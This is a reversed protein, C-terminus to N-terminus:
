GKRRIGIMGDVEVDGLVGAKKLVEVTKEVVSGKVGRVDTAFQVTKLWERADEASYDLETTIYQVAEDNHEQFHKIGLNLKEIM